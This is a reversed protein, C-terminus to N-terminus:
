LRLSDNERYLRM